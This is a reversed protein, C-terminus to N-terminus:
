DSSNSFRIVIKYANNLLYLRNCFHFVKNISCWFLTCPFYFLLRLLKFEDFVQKPSCLKENDIRKEKAERGIFRSLRWFLELLFPSTSIHQGVRM